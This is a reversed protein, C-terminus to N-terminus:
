PAKVTHVLSIGAIRNPGHCILCQEKQPKSFALARPEWISAGNTQMHDAAAATDHCAVCASAIPSSVLTSTQAQCPATTSCTAVV